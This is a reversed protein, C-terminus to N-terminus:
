QLVYVAGSASASNDAQNGGVGTAASSEQRAGVALTGDASLAICFGFEDGKHTNSAKVYAWQSWTTGSRTYVYVAGAGFAGDGQSGGIGTAVSAELRAGVVLTTGDASLALSWGFVDGTGTNSAKVYAQQHWTTGSRTYVYVAGANSASNDAQNGDIGTAASDEFAAGVALTSGDGSLAVSLGFEDGMDTNSAKVYAQQSWTAGSRTFVYVAGASSASNDAQNGDIGTAASFEFPAGVALTSGDGSLAVSMGFQDGTNTNSAKVYAQQSWTTGSRTFVYVAGAGFAGDGQNGGIGTASSSERFAGVALTSGDASLAVSTGFQDVAGTNSAKLYAQQSWTTGSRTFVYVAGASSASNDAQNGGIGTAASDETSAGVALTSGDASLTVSMGFQDIADTNSAKLYAQQSWTTGSRTFVYVAGSDSASNDAQSGGIGTAASDEHIAGVALTSGDASLAISIGFEDGAGTNSAKLYAFPTIACSNDCGDVNVTNGDDCQEGIDRIGNGCVPLTCNAECTDGNATNGDDCQEGVDVIGNGCAPLTCNAECADGNFTNGDDCQEVGIQRDGDGCVNLRCTANCRRGPGNNGPGDDCQEDADVIGNGCVPLTCDTECADGDATNGDDCQESCDVIGNGCAPLTCNNECGDGNTANGDDCQEGFDRIGNGCTPLTCNNECGDGNTTNGDDCQEGPDVKGDGCATQGLLAGANAPDSRDAINNDKKDDVVARQADDTISTDTSCATLAAAICIALAIFQRFTRM